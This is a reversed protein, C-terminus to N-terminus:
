PGIADVNVQSAPAGYPDVSASDDEPARALTASKHITSSSAWKVGIDWAILPKADGVGHTAVVVLVLGFAGILLAKGM